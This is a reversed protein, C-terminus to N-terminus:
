GTIKVFNVGKSPIKHGFSRHKPNKKQFNLVLIIHCIFALLFKDRLLGPVFLCCIKVM